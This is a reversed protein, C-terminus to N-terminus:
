RDDDDDTINHRAQSYNHCTGVNYNTDFNTSTDSCQFDYSVGHHSNAYVRSTIYHNAGTYNYSSTYSIDTRCDNAPDDLDSDVINTNINHTAGSYDNAGTHNPGDGTDNPSCNLSRLM